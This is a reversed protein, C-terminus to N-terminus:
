KALKFRVIHKTGGSDSAVNWTGRLQKEVLGAVLQLGLSASTKPDTVKPMGCGDDAITIEVEGDTTHAKVEMRGSRGDPFAHELANAILENLVLGFPAARHIDIDIIESAVVKLDIQGASGYVILLREALKTVYRQLDIHALSQSQYQLEHVTAM